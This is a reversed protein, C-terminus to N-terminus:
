NREFAPGLSSRHEKRVVLKLGSWTEDIACVKIDVFPTILAADRIANDTLDTEIGSKKQGRWGLDGRRGQDIGPARCVGEQVARLVQCIFCDCGPSGEIAGERIERVRGAARGACKAASRSGAGQNRAEELAAHRTGAM